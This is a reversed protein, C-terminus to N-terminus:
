RDQQERRRRAREERSSQTQQHLLRKKCRDMERLRWAEIEKDMVDWGRYWPAYEPSLHLDAPENHHDYMPPRTWEDPSKPPLPLSKYESQRPTRSSSLTVFIRAGRKRPVPKPKTRGSPSITAEPTTNGQIDRPASAEAQGSPADTIQSPVRSAPWDPPRFPNATHWNRYTLGSPRLSRGPSNGLAQRVFGLWNQIMARKAKAINKISVYLRGTRWNKAHYLITGQRMEQFFFRTFEAIWVGCEWGGLQTPCKPFHLKPDPNPAIDASGAIVVWVHRVIERNKKEERFLSDFYHIMSVAQDYIALAWHNGDVHVKFIWFRKKAMERRMAPRRIPDAPRGCTTIEAPYIWTCSEYPALFFRFLHDLTSGDLWEKRIIFGEVDYLSVAIDHWAVGFYTGDRGRPGHYLPFLYQVIRPNLSMRWSAIWDPRRRTVEPSYDVHCYPLHFLDNNNRPFNSIEQGPHQATLLWRRVVPSDIHGQPRPGVPKDKTTPPAAAQQRQAQIWSIRDGYSAARRIRRSPPCAGIMAESRRREM